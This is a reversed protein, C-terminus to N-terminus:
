RHRPADRLEKAFDWSTWGNRNGDYYQITHTFRDVRADPGIRGYRLIGPWFGLLVVLAAIVLLAIVVTSRTQM